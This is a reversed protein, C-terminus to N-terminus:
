SEPKVDGTVIGKMKAVLSQEDLDLHKRQRSKVKQVIERFAERSEEDPLGAYAVDYLVGIATGQRSLMGCIRNTMEKIARAYVSDREAFKDNERHDLYWLVAERVLETKTKGDTKALAELRGQDRDVLGVYLNKYTKKRGM